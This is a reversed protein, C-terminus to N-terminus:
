NVCWIGWDGEPQGIGGGGPSTQGAVTLYPARV